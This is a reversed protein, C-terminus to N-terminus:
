GAALAALAKNFRQALAPDVQPKDSKSCWIAVLSKASELVDNSKGQAGMGDALRQVQIEMRKKQETEPSPVGALIEARIVIEQDDLAGMDRALQPWEDPLADTQLDGDLRALVFTQWQAIGAKLKLAAIAQDLRQCEKHVQERVPASTNSTDLKRLEAVAQKLAEEDADRTVSAARELAAQATADAQKTAQQQQQRESDRRAFIEDCAKRFAQWLKRDERHRTIGVAQWESQLAKAKDMAEQLPEHTTLAQAQEVIALKLGENKQQENSVPAEIKKILEDFHKQVKRNDRFEVPWAAKWEQRATHLIHEVAKWNVSNWDVSALFHELETCIVKRKELNAQKLGSKAKFYSKCPEYAKDSAQKFRAWLARDSSGGLERWEKQLEKIRESKAEPEMPQEALYEMQECLAVQKPETAFGQWDSLERLQGTLLQLRSQFRRAHRQDLTKLQQQATKLLQRSEKLQQAELTDELQKLTGKLSDSAAQQQEKNGSHGTTAKPKGALKRAHKLLDPAPFGDPWHIGKVLHTARERDEATANQEPAEALKALSEKVQSIQRIANLYNRLTMMATEYSKQQQKDVRTDRTAELWRNEQTKQLADLSSLSALTEPPQHRLEELTKSIQALTEDRQRQKDLEQKEAAQASQMDALRERCRHVSELFDRTQGPTAEAEVTAWQQTLANLRAEYLKTDDSNAQERANGILTDITESIAQAQNQEDRIAQLKQRVAQYVGKDRGKARKQVEHLHEPAQLLGAARLRIEATLGEIALNAAVDQAPSSDLTRLQEDRRQARQEDVPTGATQTTQASSVKPLPATPKRSKFLKQLFAAM